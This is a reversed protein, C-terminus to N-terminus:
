PGACGGTGQCIRRAIAKFFEAAVQTPNSIEYAAGGGAAAIQSMTSYSGATGLETIIVEVRRNPNYLARLKRVLEATPLDHPAKDVGATMIILANTYNPKYAALMEQYGALIAKNIEAPANVPHVSENIQQLQQRRSILGVEDPLPGIPVLVKYPLSGNLNNAFEWDGMQTSDPFLELGLNATQTLEEELSLGPVGSPAGMASSVDILVLDQSGTQLRQWAQLDTQTEGPVTPTAEQLPQQALGDAAPLAGTVGDGSRFGYYRVISATYSQELTAQFERAATLEAPDTSTLVYPYDLEPTGLAATPGSPYRAALPQGPHAADYALVAQETTVTVPHGNLPPDSLTVFAALSTPDDFSASPQATFVFKTFALRAAASNGLLRSIEVLASLGVASQTPDPLSVRLQLATSPGGIAGPLLFNWGVSSNFAPIQAAAVAPMVIMVPSRAVSLGTPQVAQAGVPFSRAVDVWLSSDPIWADIAPLGASSTQGDVESAVAAPQEQNVQVVVCRGAAQHNQQNFVRGVHQIAPTIDPSVAINVLLPHDNCSVRAVVAQAALTAMLVSAIGVAIAVLLRVSVHRERGRRSVRGRRERPNM